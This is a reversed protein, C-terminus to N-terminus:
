RKDVSPMHDFPRGGRAAEELARIKMERDRQQQHRLYEEHQALLSPHLTAGPHPYRERELMLHRQLQEHTAQASLQHAFQEDYPRGLLGPHVLGAPPRPYGGMQLLPHPHPHQHPHGAAAVDIQPQQQPGTGQVIAGSPSPHGHPLTHTHQHGHAHAHQHHNQHQHALADHTPHLHLHTHAHAHTHAHTHTHLEPTIGAMQLRLMPDTALAMREAHLRETSLREVYPSDAPQQSHAHLRDLRERDRESMQHGAHHGPHTAHPPGIVQGHALQQQPQYIGFPSPSSHPPPPLGAAAVMCRRHMEIWHSELPGANLSHPGQPQHAPMRGMNPKTELEKLKEHLARDRLERERLEQDRKERELEFEIRERTSPPHPYLGTSLPYHLFQEIGHPSMAMAAHPHAHPHNHGVRQINPSFATHPRAYESLQRLAPTDHPYVRPQCADYAAGMVTGQHRAAADMALAASKADYSSKPEGKVSTPACHAANMAATAAAAREKEEREKDVLRRSREERKRALPSDPVPKFTLDTRCCSNCEGRNWHRLFIASQSRHCESDEVKPEPSPGRGVNSMAGREEEDEEEVRFGMHELEVDVQQMPEQKIVALPPTPTLLPTVSVQQPSQRPAPSGGGGGGILGAGGIGGGSPPRPAVPLSFDPLLPRQLHLHAPPPQLLMAGHPSMDIPAGLQKVMPAVPPPYPVPLGPPVHPHMMAAATAPSLVPQKSFHCPSRSVPTAPRQPMQHALPSQPELVPTQPTQLPRPSHGHRTSPSKPPPPIEEMRPVPSSPVTLPLPMVSQLDMPSATARLEVVEMTPTAVIRATPPTPTPARTPTPTPVPSPSVPEPPATALLPLPSAPLEITEVALIADAPPLPPPAPIPMPLPVASNNQTEVLPPLRTVPVGVIPTSSLPEPEPDQRFPEAAETAVPSPVSPSSPLSLGDPENDVDNSVSGSESTISETPSESRDVTKEKKPTKDEISDERARKLVKSLSETEAKKGSGGNHNGKESSSSSSCTSNSSPSRRGPKNAPGTAAAVPSGPAEPTASGSPRQRSRGKLPSSPEKSRRTRIGPKLDALPIEDEKVPQFLFASPERERERPDTLPRPEGYKKYFVRCETCLLTRDKGAHHWDKSTTTLCHRCAYGSLDRSDSDDSDNEEESASSLDCCENSQPRHPRGPTRIKRLVTQRRHRRHPRSNAAAPTKKWLYYYEVLEGTEKNPLLDKRIRFFNKGYQRLGKVFRKKVQEDETWKKEVGKPVPNKVLAQLAKGTDYNSSHLIDMANLTTDDRCAALCGDDASGGDCMGAFAAMSRAARLYMMLDCDSVGPVWRVDEHTECAEPMDEPRLDPKCEPLRAQHSPGIRIEGQTSALRRTEPNYGLVYFFTDPKLQFDRAAFIDQLHLVSCHGRLSTVPYTDSADSIFLERKVVPDKVIQEKGLNNETNRDQVLLQYVSDPVECPRYYWKVNVVLSERKSRRFEQITCIFYPQDPSQSDIYVSDGLRYDIDEELCTYSLYVGALSRTVKGKLSSARRGAGPVTFVVDEETIAEPEEEEEEEEM